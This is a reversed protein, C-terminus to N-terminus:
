KPNRSLGLVKRASFGNTFGRGALEACSTKEPTTFPNFILSPAFNRVERCRRKSSVFLIIDDSIDRFTESKGSLPGLGWDDIRGVDHNHPFVRLNPKQPEKNESLSRKGNKPVESVDSTSSPSFLRHTKKQAPRHSLLELPMRPVRDRSRSTAKWKVKKRTKNPTRWQM